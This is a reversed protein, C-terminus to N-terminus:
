GGEWIKKLAKEILEANVEGKSLIQAIIIRELTRTQAVRKVQPKVLLILRACLTKYLELQSEIYEIGGRNERWFEVCNSIFDKIDYGYALSLEKFEDICFKGVDLVEEIKETSEATVEKTIRKSVEGAPSVARGKKAVKSITTHSVGYDKAISRRSEGAEIRKLIDKVDLPKRKPM